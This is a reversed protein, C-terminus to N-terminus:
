MILPTTPGPTAKYPPLVLFSEGPTGGRPGYRGRPGVHSQVIDKARYEWSAMTHSRFNKDGGGRGQIDVQM